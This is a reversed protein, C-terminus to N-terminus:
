RVVLEKENIAIGVLSNSTVITSGDKSIIYTETEAGIYSGEILTGMTTAYYIKGTILGGATVTIKAGKTGIVASGGGSSMVIGLPNEKVEMISFVSKLDENVCTDDSLATIMAIRSKNGSLGSWLKPTSEYAGGIPIKEFFTNFDGVANIKAAALTIVNDNGADPFIAVVGQIAPVADITFTSIDFDQYNCYYFDDDYFDDAAALQRCGTM